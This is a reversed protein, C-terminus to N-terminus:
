PTPTPPQTVTISVTLEGVNDGLLDDNIGLYLFGPASVTYQARHGVYFLDGAEGVRGLLAGGLAPPTQMPYFAPAWRGGEPGHLGVWPSYSWQGSATLSVTEGKELYLGTSQWQRYAFVRHVLMEAQSHPRWATAAAVSFWCAAGLALVGLILGWGPFTRARTKM